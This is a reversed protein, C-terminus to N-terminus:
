NCVVVLVPCAWLSDMGMSNKKKNVKKKKKRASTDSHSSAPLQLTELCLVCGTLPVFNSPLQPVCHCLPSCLSFVGSLQMSAGQTGHSMGLCCPGPDRNQLGSIAHHSSSSIRTSIVCNHSFVSTHAWVSHSSRPFCRPCKPSVGQPHKRSTCLLGQSFSNFWFLNAGIFCFSPRQPM